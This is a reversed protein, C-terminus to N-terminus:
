ETMERIPTINRMDQVSRNQNLLFTGKHNRSVINNQYIKPFDVDYGYEM